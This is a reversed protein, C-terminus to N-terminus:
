ILYLKIVLGGLGSLILGLTLWTATGTKPQVPPAEAALVEGTVEITTKCSEGAENFDGNNDRVRLSAQYSGPNGYPHSVSQSASGGFDGEVLKQQGDGFIFEFATIKGDRDSGSGTFSVNLVAGGESPSASFGSCEPLDNPKSTPTPTATPTPTPTPTLTPTPTPTLPACSFDKNRALYRFDGLNWQLGNESFPFGSFSSLDTRWWDTQVGKGDEADDKPCFCQLFNGEPLSFVDDEGTVRGGGVVQHEGSDYHAVAGSGKALQEQCSPFDPPTSAKDEAGVNPTLFLDRNMLFVSVILVLVIFLLVIKGRLFIGMGQSLDRTKGEHNKRSM